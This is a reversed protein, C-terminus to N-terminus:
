PFRGQAPRQAPKAQPTGPTDVARKPASSANASRNLAVRTRLAVGDENRYEPPTPLPANRNGLWSRAASVEAFAGERVTYTDSECYWVKHFVRVPVVTARTDRVLVWAETLEFGPSPTDLIECLHGSDRIRQETQVTLDDAPETGEVSFLAIGGFPCGHGVLWNQASPVTSHYSTEMAFTYRDINRKIAIAVVDPTGTVGWEASTDLAVIFSHSHSEDPMMHHQTLPTLDGTHLLELEEESAADAPWYAFWDIGLEIESSM